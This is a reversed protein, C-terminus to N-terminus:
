LSKTFQNGFIFFKLGFINIKQTELSEDLEISSKKKQSQMNYIDTESIEKLETEKKLNSLNQDSNEETEIKDINWIDVPKEDTYGNLCLFLIFVISFFKKSLLRLIKM